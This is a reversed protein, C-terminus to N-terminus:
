RCAHALHMAAAITNPGLRPHDKDAGYAALQTYRLVFNYPPKKLLAALGQPGDSEAIDKAMVYAINYLVGHGLFGVDYLDDYSVPEATNLSIVSMELLTGSTRIHSLGEDMDAQMRAAVSSHSQPLLSIDEVYMATGEEYLNAFLQETNVCEQSPPGAASDPKMARDAAFAGQVAHYLEHTTTSKALILDDNFGINLFFETGGFSYGGGDGAAIVYGELHIAANPPTFLAIRTEIAQQFSKPNAEIEQLLALLAPAKPKVLDLLIAKETDKTVKEDHACAYLANAFDETTSPIKFDHLKRLAAQNGYMRAVALADARSLSPNQMALLTARADDVHITVTTASAANPLMAISACLVAMEIM